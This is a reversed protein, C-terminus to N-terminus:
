GVLREKLLVVGCIVLAIACAILFWKIAVILLGLPWALVWGYTWVSSWDITAGEFIALCLFGAGLYLAASFLSIKM